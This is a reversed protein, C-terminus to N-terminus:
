APRVEFAGGLAANAEEVNAPSSLCAMVHGDGTLYTEAVRRLDEAGVRLLGAKFAAEVESTYGSRDDYFRKPAKTDPSLLPDVTNCSALVAEKVDEPDPEGDLVTRVARDFIEFTRVIEPDRYSWMSFTGRKDDWPARAAAGYAGGKERLERHLFTTRLLHGLAMLAPADPHTYPVTPFVKANYAVPVSTTRAEHARDPIPAPAAEGSPPDDPLAGLLEGLHESLEGLRGEEGTACVALNPTRFLHDRIEDLEAALGELGDAGLDGLERLVALQSFSNQGTREALAGTATLKAGALGFTFLHGAGVVSSELRARYEAVIERLREPTFRARALLDHLIATLEANKRDLAKASVRLWRLPPGEGSAPTRVVAQAAIGGTHADIRSATELHDAEGAGSRTLAYAFVGLRDLLHDPLTSFDARLDLYTFGNTPQAFLGLDAGRVERSAYPVEEAGTTVDSLELTPLVSLDAKEEQRERLRRALAVIGERDGDSLAREIAEVRAQEDTRQREALEPDPTMLIRARHPSDLLYRRILDEFFGGESALARLRDLDRDIRLAAYPDGGHVFPFAARFFLKLAYPFRSHSVERSSIELQHIAADVKGPDIGDRVLERLTDLVVTEVRDADEPDLGKLGVCFPAERVHDHFGTGDALDDGIGSAILAQRLPSAANDLLIRELAELALTEFTDGVFTTLWGVLVQSKRSTDESPDIAYRVEHTRPADFRPQDGVATDAELPGLRDLARESIRGLVDELSLDGYTFFYANSPHYHGAHFAKLDEWTLDPIREPDGGSNNAYTTDPLLAAGIARQLVEPPSAMAGKMENYVVGKLVLPSSPDDLDAPEVRHGEQRFTEEALRPFFVADLYVDLLNSFDKENRTSFPYATADPFTLANMFDQLSRPLMSFFPDPVPFRESGALVSHELIHAVGSSDQPVTPLLVMFAKSEDPAAVHIHRAGTAEHTLELYTGDVLDLPEVRDVVYGGIRTGVDLTRQAM